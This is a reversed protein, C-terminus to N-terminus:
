EKICGTCNKRCEGEKDGSAYRQHCGSCNKRCEGEKEGSKYRQHVDEEEDSDSEEDESAEEESEEEEIEEEEGGEFDEWRIYNGRSGGPMSFGWDSSLADLCRALWEKNTDYVVSPSELEADEQQSVSALTNMIENWKQRLPGHVDFNNEYIDVGFMAIMKEQHEGELTLNLMHELHNNDGPTGSLSDGNGFHSINFLGELYQNRAERLSTGYAPHVDTIRDRDFWTDISEQTYSDSHWYIYRGSYLEEAAVSSFILAWMINLRASGREMETKSPARGSNWIFTCIMKDSVRNLLGPKSCLRFADYFAKVRIYDDGLREQTVWYLEDGGTQSGNGELADLIQHELDKYLRSAANKTFQTLLQLQKLVSQTSYTPNRRPDTRFFSHRTSPGEALAEEEADGKWAWETETKCASCNIKECYSCMNFGNAQDLVKLAMAWPPHLSAIDQLESNVKSISLYEPVNLFQVFHGITDPLLITLMVSM